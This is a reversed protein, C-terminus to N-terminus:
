YPQLHLCKLQYFSRFRMFLERMVVMVMLVVVMVVVAMLMAAAVLVMMVGSDCDGDRGDGGM